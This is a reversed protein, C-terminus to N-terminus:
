GQFVCEPSDNEHLNVGSMGSNVAGDETYAVALDISSSSASATRDTRPMSSDPDASSITEPVVSLQVHMEHESLAESEGGEEEDAEEFDLEDDEEAGYVHELVRKPVQFYRCVSSNKLTSSTVCSRYFGM